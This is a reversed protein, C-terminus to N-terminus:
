FIDEETSYVPMAFLEEFGFKRYFKLGMPTAQLVLRKGESLGCIENMMAGAIGRRRMKPLVAFYYIGTLEAERTILFTGADEGECVALYLSMNEQDNMLAEVLAYYNSPTDGEGGFSRWATDAWRRSQESTDVHEFAVDSGGPVHGEPELTMAWLSGAYLLGCAKLVDGGGEYVPWMFSEGRAQFFKVAENVLEPSTIDHPYYVWNESECRTSVCFGEELPLSDSIELHRLRTLFFKLDEWIINKM